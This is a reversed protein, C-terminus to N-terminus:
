LVIVVYPKIKINLQKLRIVIVVLWNYWMKHKIDKQVKNTRGNLIM